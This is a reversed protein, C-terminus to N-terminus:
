GKEGKVRWVRRQMIVDKELGEEELLLETRKSTEDEALLPPLFPLLTHPVGCACLGFGVRHVRPIAAVAVM